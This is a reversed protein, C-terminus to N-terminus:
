FVVRMLGVVIGLVGAVVSFVSILGGRVRPSLAAIAGVLGLIIAAIGLFFGWGGTFFAAIASILALISPISYSPSVNGPRTIIDAM